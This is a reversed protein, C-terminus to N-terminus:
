DFLHKFRETLSQKLTKEDKLIKLVETDDAKVGHAVANRLRNLRKFSNNNKLTEKAQDRVSFDNENNKIKYIHSSILGEFGYIIARIYDGRNLYSDALVMEREGRNTKKFWSIRSILQNKFLNFLPSDLSEIHSFVTSLTEKSKTSNTTREYFAAKKLLDVNDLSLGQKELLSAFVGFDGDKDFCSLADVWTLLELLGSLDLIPTYNKERMEFAGYYIKQVNISQTKQLFRAAVLSLMPLHRFGHTVDIDISEQPSLLEALRSLIAMQEKHTKGYPILECHVSIELKESLFRSFPTLLENTVSQNQVSEALTLWEEDLGTTNELFVDWMSGATGLLILRSPKTKHTLTLGIYTQNEYHSGDDFQYNATQYGRSDKGKGLFSILTTM